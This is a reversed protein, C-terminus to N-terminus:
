SICGLGSFLVIPCLKQLTIWVLTAGLNETFQTHTIGRCLLEVFRAGATKVDHPDSTRDWHRGGNNDMKILINSFKENRLTLRPLAEPLM